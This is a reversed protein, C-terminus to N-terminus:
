CRVLFVVVICLSLGPLRGGDQGEVRSLLPAARADRRGLRGAGARGRGAAPGLGGPARRCDERRAAGDQLRDPGAAGRHRGPAAARPRLAGVQPRHAPQLRGQLQLYRGGLHAPAAADALRVAAAPGRDPVRLPERRLRQAAHRRPRLLSGLGRHGLLRAPRAPRDGAQHVM